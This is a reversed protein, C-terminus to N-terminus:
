HKIMKTTPTTSSFDLAESNVMITRNAAKEAPVGGLIKRVPVEIKEASTKPYRAKKAFLNWLTFPAERGGATLM